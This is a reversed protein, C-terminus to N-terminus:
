PNPGCYIDAVGEIVYFTFGADNPNIEYSYRFQASEMVYCNPTNQDIAAQYQPLGTIVKSRMMDWFERETLHGLSLDDWDSNSLAAEVDAPTSQVVEFFAPDCKSTIIFRVNDNGAQINGSPAAMRDIVDITGPKCGAYAQGPPLPDPKCGADCDGNDLFSFIAGVYGFAGSPFLDNGIIGAATSLMAPSAFATNFITHATTTADGTPEGANVLAAVMEMENFCENFQNGDNDFHSVIFLDPTGIPCPPLADTGQQAEPVDSFQAIAQDPPAQRFQPTTSTLNHKARVDSTDLQEKTCSALLSICLMLLLSNKM